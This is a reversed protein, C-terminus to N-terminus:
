VVLLPASPNQPKSTLLHPLHQPPQLTPAPELPVMIDNIEAQHRYLRRRGAGGTTITTPFRRRRGRGRGRGGRRPQRQGAHELYAQRAADAEAHVRVRRDPQPLRRAAPPDRAVLVLALACERRRRRHRRMRGDDNPASDLIVNEDGRPSILTTCLERRVM